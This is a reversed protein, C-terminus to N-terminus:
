LTTLPYDYDITELEDRNYGEMSLIFRKGHHFTARGLTTLDQSRWVEFELRNRGCLVALVEPKTPDASKITLAM